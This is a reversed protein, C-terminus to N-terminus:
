GDSAPKIAALRRAADERYLVGVLRGSPTTVVVAGTRREKLRPVLSALREGPRITAPGPEMVDDVLAMAETALTDQRLRGLVVRDDTVVLCVDWGAARVRERVAGVREGLRCTPVDPRAV